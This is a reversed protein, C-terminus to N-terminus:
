FFGKMQLLQMVKAASTASEQDDRFAGDKQGGRKAREQIARSCFSVGCYSEFEQLTRVRGLGYEVVGGSEKTEGGEVMGLLRHVKEQAEEKMRQVANDFHERVTPRYSRDWLHYVVAAMPTHASFRTAASAPPASAGGYVSALRCSGLAAGVM